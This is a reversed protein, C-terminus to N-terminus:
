PRGLMPNRIEEFGAPIIFLSAPPPSRDIKTALLTTTSGDKATARMRLVLANGDFSRMLTAMATNSPLPLAGGDRGGAGSSGDFGLISGIETTICWEDGRAATKVIYVICAVGAIREKRSTAVVDAVADENPRLASADAEGIAARLRAFDIVMFRQVSPVVTIVVSSDYDVIAYNKRSAEPADERHTDQRVKRGRARVVMEDHRGGSSVEYTIAGEFHKQAAAGRSVACGVVIAASIRRFM